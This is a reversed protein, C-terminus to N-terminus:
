GAPDLFAATPETSDRRLAFYELGLKDAPVSAIQGGAVLHDRLHRSRHVQKLRALSCHFFCRNDPKQNGSRVSTIFASCADALLSLDSSGSATPHLCSSAAPHLCSSAAQALIGVTRGHLFPNRLDLSESKHCHGSPRIAPVERPM